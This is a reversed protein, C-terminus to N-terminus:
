ERAPLRPAQRGALPSSSDRTLRRPVRGGPPHHPPARDRAGFWLLLVGKTVLPYWERNWKGRLRVRTSNVSSTGSSPSTTSPSQITEFDSTQSPSTTTSPLRM